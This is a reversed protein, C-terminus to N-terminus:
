STEQFTGFGPIEDEDDMDDHIASLVSHDSDHDLEHNECTEPSIISLPPEQDRRPMSEIVAARARQEKAEQADDAMMDGWARMPLQDPAPGM